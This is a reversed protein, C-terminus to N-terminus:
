KKKDKKINPCDKNCSKGCECELEISKIYKSFKILNKKYTIRAM